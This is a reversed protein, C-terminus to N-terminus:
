PLFVRVGVRSSRPWGVTRLPTRGTDYDKDFLNEMAFFVAVGRVVEQSISFDVVGYKALELTNLDDDFQPGFARAQLAATLGIPDVYAVSGGWQYPPVQPVTNGALAPQAPTEHFRSRTAVFLGGVMWRPHPRYDAEVEVGSARVTDTNQRQRLNVGITVNTVANELQNAFATVRASVGGHAFLVGGEGGTLTEPDLEPNPNTVIAGAVFGRHLENLSPTRHSRYAAGHFSFMDSVRWGVSVRPSLFNASHEELTTDVPTSQWFDGRVGGVITVSDIPAYSVRTFVGSVTETGGSVFPGTQVGSASYRFEDITSDAYRWEGAVLAV